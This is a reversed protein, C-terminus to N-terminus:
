VQLGSLHMTSGFETEVLIISCEVFIWGTLRYLGAGGAKQTIYREMLTMGNWIDGTTMQRGIAAIYVM